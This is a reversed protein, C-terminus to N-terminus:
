VRMLNSDQTVCCKTAATSLRHVSSRTRRTQQNLHVTTRPHEHRLCLQRPAPEKRYPACVYVTARVCRHYLTTSHSVRMSDYLTVVSVLSSPLIRAGTAHVSHKVSCPKSHAFIKPDVVRQNLNVNHLKPISRISYGVDAPGAQVSVAYQQKCM